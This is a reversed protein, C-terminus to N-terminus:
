KFTLGLSIGVYALITPLFIDSLEPNQKLPVQLMLGTFLGASVTKLGLRIGIETGSTWIFQDKVNSDLVVLQLMLTSRLGIYAKRLPLWPWFNLSFGLGARGDFFDGTDGVGLLAGQNLIFVFLTLPSIEALLEVGLSLHQNLIHQFRFGLMPQAAILLDLSAKRNDLGLSSTGPDILSGAPIPLSPLQLEGPELATANPDSPEELPSLGPEADTQAESNALNEQEQACIGLGASLLLFLALFAAKSLCPLAQLKM